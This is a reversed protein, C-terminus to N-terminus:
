GKVRLTLYCSPLYYVKYRMQAVAVSYRIKVGLGQLNDGFCDVPAIISSHAKVLGGTIPPSM